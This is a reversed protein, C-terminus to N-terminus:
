KVSCQVDVREFLGVASGCALDFVEQQIDNRCLYLVPKSYFDGDTNILVCKGQINSLLYPQNKYSYWNGIKHKFCQTTEEMLGKKPATLLRGDQQLSELMKRASDTSEELTQAAKNFSQSLDTRNM